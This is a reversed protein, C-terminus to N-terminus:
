FSKPLVRRKVGKKDHFNNTQFTKKKENGTKKPSLLLFRYIQKLPTFFSRSHDGVVGFRICSTTWMGNVDINEKMVFSNWHFVFFFVHCLGWKKKRWLSQLYEPKSMFLFNTQNLEKKHWKHQIHICHYYSLTTEKTEPKSKVYFTVFSFRPKQTSFILRKQRGTLAM